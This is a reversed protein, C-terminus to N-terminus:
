PPSFGHDLFARQGEPGCLWAGLARAEAAHPADAIWALPYRVVPRANPPPPGVVTVDTRDRVDTAYVVAADAEGRAVLDLVQRVNAGRVIKPRLADLAGLTTLAREAYVGAPVSPSVGLAVREVAPHTALTEWRLDALGVASRRVLVLGNGALTCLVTLPTSRALRDVPETAASAFLSVPAGRAIQAALDGSAGFSFRVSHNPHTGEYRRALAELPARLSIAASVHIAVAPPADRRCGALALALLPARRSV